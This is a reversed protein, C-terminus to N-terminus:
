KDIREVTIKTKREVGEIGRAKCFRVFDNRASTVVDFEDTNWEVANCWDANSWALADLILQATQENIYM